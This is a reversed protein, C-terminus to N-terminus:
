LLYFHASCFLLSTVSSRGKSKASEADRGWQGLEGEAQGVPRVHQPSRPGRPEHFGSQEAAKQRSPSASQVTGRPDAAARGGRARRCEDRATRAPTQGNRLEPDCTQHLAAGAFSNLFVSPWLAFSFFRSQTFMYFSILLLDCLDITPLRRNKWYLILIWGLPM